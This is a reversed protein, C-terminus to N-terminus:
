QAGGNRLLRPTTRPNARYAVGNELLLTNLEAASLFLRRQPGQYSDMMAFWTQGGHQFTRTLAVEHGPEVRVMVPRGERLVGAFETSPVVQAQGLVEALMVVEGGNLGAREIAAQPHDREGASRWDGQSILKTAQAAVYGYPRGTANALAFITCDSFNTQTGAGAFGLGGGQSAERVLEPDQGRARIDRWARNIEDPTATPDGFDLARLDRNLRARKKDSWRFKAALADMGNIVRLSAPDLAPPPLPAPAVTRCIPQVIIADPTETRKEGIKVTGSPCDGTQAMAPAALSLAAVFPLSIMAAELTGRRM